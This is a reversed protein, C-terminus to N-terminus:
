QVTFYADRQASGYSSVVRSTVTYSGRPANSPLSYAVADSFTGNANSVTTQYPQGVPQGQHRVERVLNVSVPTNSPTLITYTMGLNVQQGPRVTSPRAEASDIAVVNGQSPTYNYSQAAAQRSRMESNRHEAYLLGGVGGLVGGAAAGVWAGTAPSGTGAGIISGVAAGTAAGGLAGAGASRGPDYYGSETQCGALSLTFIALVALVLIKRSM